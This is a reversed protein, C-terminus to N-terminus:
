TELSQTYSISVNTSVQSGYLCLVSKWLQSPFLEETTLTRIVVLLM